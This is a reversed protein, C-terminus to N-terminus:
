RAHKIQDLYMVSNSGSCQLRGTFQAKLVANLHKKKHTRTGFWRLKCTLSPIPKHWLDFSDQKGHIEGFSTPTRSTIYLSERGMKSSLDDQQVGGTLSFLVLRLCLEAREKCAFEFGESRVADARFCIM